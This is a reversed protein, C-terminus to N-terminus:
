FLDNKTFHIDRNPAVTFAWLLRTAIYARIEEPTTVRCRSDIDNKEQKQDAYRNTESAIIESLFVPFMLNFFDIEEATADLTRTPGPIGTFDEVDVYQLEERWACQDGNRNKRPPQQQQKEERRM